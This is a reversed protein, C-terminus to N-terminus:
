RRPKRPRTAGSAAPPWPGPLRNVEAMLERNTARAAELEETREQLQQRLDATTQELEGVRRRLAETQDPGGLGSARFIEEGLADSLRRALKANHRRLRENHARLNALDALRSQRSAQAARPLSADPPAQAARPLSADPPAQAARPLSADPPAQAARPLSA